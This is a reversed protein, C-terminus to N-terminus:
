RARCATACRETPTAFHKNGRGGKGGKAIVLRTNSQVIEELKEGTEADLVVTGVPVRVEYTAVPRATVIRASAM